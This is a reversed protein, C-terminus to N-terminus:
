LRRKKHFTDIMFSGSDAELTANTWNTPNTAYSVIRAEEETLQVYGDSWGNASLSVPYWYKTEESM